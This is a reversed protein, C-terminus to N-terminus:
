LRACQLRTMTAGAGKLIADGNGALSEAGSADMIIRSDTATKVRLALQAGLNSRVVTSIVDASPKQTAVIIHIGSARAKQTLRQLSREISKKSDRDSTLDAFEDLVVLRWPLREDGEVRENLEHLTKARHQRMLEYRREMEEVMQDLLAQADDADFGLPADLHDYDELFILETRKPDIASVRLEDSSYHRLLGVLITEIAVSKGAGTMGGVLLHPTDNSSFDVMVPKGEVDEGIAVRLRDKRWEVRPWLEDVSVYYREDELKPVEFVVAGRDIYARPHLEAPLALKYKLNETQAIVKQPQVGPGPQVRYIIFGPGEKIPEREDRRVEVEYESLTDLVTQYRAQLEAQSMGRNSATSAMLPPNDIGSEADAARPAGISDDAETLAESDRHGNRSDDVSRSGSVELSGRGVLNPLDHSSIERLVQTLEDTSVRIWAHEGDPTREFGVAGGEVITCVVGEVADLDYKGARIADRFTAPLRNEIRGHWKAQFTWGGGGHPDRASEEIADLLARRWFDGDQFASKDSPAFAGRCLSCTAGVQRSASSVTAQDRLKSEVVTLSLRLRDDKWIGAVRLLDARTKQGSSFWEGREDLSIWSEFGSDTVEVPKFQRVLHQSVVVGVLEQATRGLGVARLLTDPTLERCRDYIASAVQETNGGLAGGLQQQLRRALRHVVFDRGVQSSVILTYVGAKGLGPKVTIVQPRHELAEIQKRGVFADLTVVWHAKEHIEKFFSEGDMVSLSLTIYDIDHDGGKEAGIKSARFHRVNITSWRGLAPDRQEPLLKRSVSKAAIGGVASERTTCRDLWPNFRGGFNDERQTAEQCRTGVSFLNPVVAIDIEAKIDDLPPTVMDEPWEHFIARLRPFDREAREDGGDFDNLVDTVAAYEKLPCLIHLSLQMDNRRARGSLDSQALFRRLVERVTRAGGERVVMLLHLGDSKYPYADVYRGLVQAVEELSSDDLDALWDTLTRDTTRVVEYREHWCVERVAVYVHSDDCLVPPQEHPSVQELRDFFFEENEENLRLEGNRADVLWDSLQSLHAAVWRLRLPHTALLTPTDDVGRHTDVSLFEAIVPHSSGQPVYDLQARELLSEWVRVYEQLPEPSLGDKAIREFISERVELWERTLEGEPRHIEGGVLEGSERVKECWDDFDDQPTRWRWVSPSHVAAALVAFGPVDSPRWEFFEIGSEDDSWRLQLRLAQWEDENEDGAGGANESNADALWETLPRPDVLSDEVEIRGGTREAVDSLTPGYLFAFLARSYRDKSDTGHRTRVELRLTADEEEADNALGHFLRILYPLPHDVSKARPNAIREISKRLRQTILDALAPIGDFAPEEDLFRQAAEAEKRNLGEVVDLAALEPLRDSAKEEIEDHVKTGLGRRRSTLAFLQQWYHFQIKDTSTRDYARLYERLNGRLEQLEQEELDNGQLDHFHIRDVLRVLEDRDIEKGSKNRDTAALLNEILRRQRPVVGDITRLASDPFLGLIPLAAGVAARATAGDIAGVRGATECVQCAFRIWQRLGLRTGNVRLCELLERAVERVTAPARGPVPSQTSWVDDLAEICTSVDTEQAGLLNGDSLLTVNKLGQADSFEEAEFFICSSNENRYTTASKDPEIFWNRPVGPWPDSSIVILSVQGDAWPELIRAMESIEEQTFGRLRVMGELETGFLKQVHRAAVRAVAEAIIGTHTTTTM